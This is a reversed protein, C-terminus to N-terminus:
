AMTWRPKNDRSPVLRQNNIRLTRHSWNGCSWLKRFKKWVLFTGQVSVSPLRLSCSRYASHPLLENGELEHIETMTTRATHPRSNGQQLLVRNRNVLTRELQQSYIDADVASRKSYVGLSVCRWFEVLYLVNNQPRVLTKLSSMSLSVSVSGSNRPTLIATISGSKMVHLLEGFLEIMWTIGILQSCIHVRHLAQQPTLEHSVFRWIKTYNKLRRLRAIYPIKQHM